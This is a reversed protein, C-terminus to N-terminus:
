ADTVGTLVAACKKGLMVFNMDWAFRNRTARKTELEGIPYHTMIGNQIGCVGDTESFRLALIVSNDYSTTRTKSYDYSALSLVSSSNNDINDTMWDNVYLPLGGYWSCMVGFEDQAVQVISTSARLLSNSLYRRTRRDTLLVEPNGPLVADILEDIKTLALIASTADNAIAQSNQGAAGDLDANTLAVTEYNGIYDLIGTCEKSNATDTTGGWIFARSAEHAMAKAKGEINVAQASQVDSKTKNVFLDTDVDGGMTKLVVSGQAWTNANETWTDNVGYWQVTAMANEINYLFSNGEHNKFGIRHFLPDEKVITALVGAVIKDTTLYQYVTLTNM